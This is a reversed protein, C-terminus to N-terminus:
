GVFPEFGLIQIEFRELGWRGFGLLSWLGLCYVFYAEFGLVRIGHHELFGSELGVGFGLVSIRSHKLIYSGTEM